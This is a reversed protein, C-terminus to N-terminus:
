DEIDVMYLVLGQGSEEGSIPRFVATLKSGDTFEWVFTRNEGDRSIDAQIDDPMQVLFEESTTVDLTANM